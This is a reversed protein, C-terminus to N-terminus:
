ITTNSIAMGSIFCIAIIALDILVSLFFVPITIKTPMAALNVVLTMGMAGIAFPWFIFNNGALMIAFVTIITLVCGHLTLTAALWGLRNKEQGDCWNIFKRFASKTAQTNEKSHAFSHQMTTEMDILKYM